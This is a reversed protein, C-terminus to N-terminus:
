YARNTIVIKGNARKIVYLTQSLYLHGRGRGFYVQAGSRRIGTGAFSPLRKDTMDQVLSFLTM